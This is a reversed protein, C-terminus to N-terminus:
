RTGNPNKTLQSELVYGIKGTVTKVKLGSGKSGILILKDGQKVTAVKNSSLNPKAYVYDCLDNAYYIRGSSPAKSTDLVIDLMYYYKSGIKVRYWGDCQAVVTVATNKKLTGKASKIIASAYYPMGDAQVYMTKNLTNPNKTSLCKTASIYGVKGSASRVKSYNGNKELLYCSQGLSLSGISDFANPASEVSILRDTMYVLTGKTYSAGTYATQVYGYYKGNQIRLWSGSKAVATYKAGAKLTGIKRSATSAHAYVKVGNKQIYVTKNYTNPSTQSLSGTKMYGTKGASNKVTAWSGSVATCKLSQGFSLTGLSASSTSKKKYVKATTSNVYVTGKSLAFSSAPFISLSLLMCMVLAITRLLRPTKKM